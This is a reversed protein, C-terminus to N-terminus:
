AAFIFDRGERYNKLILDRRIEDNAGRNGVYSVMFCDGPEPIDEISGVPAGHIKRGIKNPDVDVYAKFRIGHGLLYEARKRTTRGSGCIVVEPHHPNHQKLWRALYGAKIKYFADPHYREHTRSLRGPLDRWLLVPESIKQMVVGAELWRLWLEYDEPFNGDRYGGYQEVCERRFMVSPHALPSEIFHHLLIDDYTIQKNIWNIYHYYGANKQQDGYHDVLGAVLGTEPHADLFNRQLRLRNPLSIDDADMRAIYRGQAEDLGTNLANVIGNHSLYFPRIRSDIKAWSEIIDRSDDTSGDDILLLEFDTETQDIICEIAEDLTQAADYVPLIVSIAPTPLPKNLM